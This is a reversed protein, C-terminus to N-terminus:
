AVISLSLLSKTVFIVATIIFVMMPLHANCKQFSLHIPLQAICTKLCIQILCCLYSKFHAPTFSINTRKTYICLYYCVHITLFSGITLPFLYPLKFHVRYVNIHHGHEFGCPYSLKSIVLFATLFNLPLEMRTTIRIHFAENGFTPFVM